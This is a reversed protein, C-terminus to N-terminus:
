CSHSELDLGIREGSVLHGQWYDRGPQSFLDQCCGMPEAYAACPLIRPIPGLQSFIPSRWRFFSKGQCIPEPLDTLSAHHMKPVLLVHGCNVPHIDLFAVADETELVTASPIERLIIKCFVCNPDHVHRSM